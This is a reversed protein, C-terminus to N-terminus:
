SCKCPRRTVGKERGIQVWWSINRWVKSQPRVAGLNHVTTQCKHIVKDKLEVMIVRSSGGETNRPAEPNYESISVPFSVPIVELEKPSERARQSAM